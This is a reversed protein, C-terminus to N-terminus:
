PLYKFLRGQELHKYYLVMQCQFTVFFCKETANNEVKSLWEPFINFTSVRKATISNMNEGTKVSFPKTRSPAIEQTCSAQSKHSKTVTIDM